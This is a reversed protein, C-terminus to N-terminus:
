ASYQVAGSGCAVVAALKLAYVWPYLNPQVYGEASTVVGFAIVPALYSLWATDSSAHTRGNPNSERM